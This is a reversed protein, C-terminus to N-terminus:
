TRDFYIGNKGRHRFSLCLSFVELEAGVYTHSCLMACSHNRGTLGDLRSCRTQRETAVDVVTVTCCHSYRSGSFVDCSTV